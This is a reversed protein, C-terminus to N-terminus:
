SKSKESLTTKIKELVWEYYKRKVGSGSTGLAKGHSRANPHLFALMQIDKQSELATVQYTGDGKYDECLLHTEFDTSLNGNLIKSAQAGFTLIVNPAYKNIEEKLMKKYKDELQKLVSKKKADIREWGFKECNVAFQCKPNNYCMGEGRTDTKYRNYLKLFDTLYVTANMKLLQLLLNRLCTDMVNERYPMSHGGWPSSLYLAGVGLGTRLPDQSVIMIRKKVNGHKPSLWVPLDHGVCPYKLLGDNGAWFEDGCFLSADIKLLADRYTDPSPMSLGDGWSTNDTGGQAWIGDNLEELFNSNMKKYREEFIKRLSKPFIGKDNSEANKDGFLIDIIIKPDFVKPDCFAIDKWPEESDGTQSKAQKSSECESLVKAQSKNGKLSGTWIENKKLIETLQGAIGKVEEKHSDWNDYPIIIRLCVGMEKGPENDPRKIKYGEPINLQSCIGKQELVQCVEECSKKAFVVIQSWMLSVYMQHTKAVYINKKDAQLNWGWKSALEKMNM